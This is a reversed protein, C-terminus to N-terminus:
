SCIHSRVRNSFNPTEFIYKGATKEIKESNSNLMKGVCPFPLSLSFTNLSKLLFPPMDDDYLRNRPRPCSASVPRGVFTISSKRRLRCTM